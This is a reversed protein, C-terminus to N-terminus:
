DDSSESRGDSAGDGSEFVYYDKSGDLSNSIACKKFSKHVMDALIAGWVDVIWQWLLAIDPRRM